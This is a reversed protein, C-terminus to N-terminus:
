KILANNSTTRVCKDKLHKIAHLINREEKVTHLVEEARVRDVCSIQMRRRCWTVFSELYKQDPKRLTLIRASNM